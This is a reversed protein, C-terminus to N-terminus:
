RVLVILTVTMLKSSAKRGVLFIGLYARVAAFIPYILEDLVWFRTGASCYRLDSGLMGATTLVIGNLGLTSDFDATYVHGNVRGFASPIM